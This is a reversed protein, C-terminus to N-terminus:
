RPEACAFRRRGPRPARGSSRRRRRLTPATVPHARPTRPSLSPLTASDRITKTAVSAFNQNEKTQCSSFRRTERGNEEPASQSKLCSRPSPKKTRARVERKREAAALRADVRAAIDEAPLEQRELRMKLRKPLPSRAPPSGFPGPTDPKDIGGERDEDERQPRESSGLDLSVGRERKEKKGHIADKDAAPARVRVPVGVPAMDSRRRRKLATPAGFPSGRPLSTCTLDPKIAVLTFNQCAPNSKRPECGCGSSKGRLYSGILAFGYGQRWVVPNAFRPVCEVRGSAPRTSRKLRPYFATGTAM